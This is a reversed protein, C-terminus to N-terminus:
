LSFFFQNSYTTRWPAGMSFIDRFKESRELVQKLAKKGHIKFSGSKDSIQLSQIAEPPKSRAAQIQNDTL